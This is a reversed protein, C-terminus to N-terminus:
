HVALGTMEEVLTPCIWSLIICVMHKALVVLHETVLSSYPGSRICCVFIVWKAFEHLRVLILNM